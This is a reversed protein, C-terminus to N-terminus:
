KKDKTYHICRELTSKNCSLNYVECCKLTPLFHVCDNVFGEEEKGSRVNFDNILINRIVGSRSTGLKESTRDYFDVVKNPLTISITQGKSM